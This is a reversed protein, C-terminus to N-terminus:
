AAGHDHRWQRVHNDDVDDGVDVGFDGFVNGSDFDKGRSGERGDTRSRYTGSSYYACAINLTNDTSSAKSAPVIGLGLGIDDDTSENVKFRM